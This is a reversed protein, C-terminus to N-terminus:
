GRVVARLEALIELLADPWPGPVGLSRHRELAVEDDVPVGPRAQLACLAWGGSVEIAIPTRSEIPRGFVRPLWDRWVEHGVLEVVAPDVTYLAYERDTRRDDTELELPEHHPYLAQTPASIRRQAVAFWPLRAGLEVAAVHYPYEVDRGDRGRDRAVFDVVVVAFGEPTGALEGHFVREEGLGLFSFPLRPAILAEPPNERLGLREARGGPILTRAGGFAAGGAFAERLTAMFGGRRDRPM